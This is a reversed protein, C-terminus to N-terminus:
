NTSKPPRHRQNKVRLADSSALRMQMPPMGFASRFARTFSAAHVYGCELAIEVMSLTSDSILERALEMRLKDRIEGVTGGYIMRFGRQLRQRTLGVAEAIEKVDSPADLSSRILRMAEQLKKHDAESFCGPDESEVARSLNFLIHCALELAKATLFAHRFSGQFPPKIMQHAALLALQTLPVNRCSLHGDHRLFDVVDSPLDAPEFGTTKLLSARQLFVTVWRLQQGSQPFTELEHGSTAGYVTCYGHALEGENGLQYTLPLKGELVASLALYDSASHRRPLGQTVTMDVISVCIGHGLQYFEWSGSAVEPDYEYHFGFGPPILRCWGDSMRRAAKGARRQSELMQLMDEMSRNSLPSTDGTSTAM